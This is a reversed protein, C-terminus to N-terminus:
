GALPRFGCQVVIRETGVGLRRRGVVARLIWEIRELRAAPSGRMCAGTTCQVFRSVFDPSPECVDSRGPLIREGSSPRQPTRRLATVLSRRRRPPKCPPLPGFVSECPNMVLLRLLSRSYERDSEATHGSRRSPREPFCAASVRSPSRDTM